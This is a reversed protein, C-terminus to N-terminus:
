NPFCRVKTLNKKECWEDMAETAMELSNADGKKCYFRIQYQGSNGLLWVPM